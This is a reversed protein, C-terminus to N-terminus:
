IYYGLVKRLLQLSIKNVMHFRQIIYKEVILTNIKRTVYLINQFLILSYKFPLFIDNLNNQSDM